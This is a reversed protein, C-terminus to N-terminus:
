KLWTKKATYAARADRERLYDIKPIDWHLIVTCYPSFYIGGEFELSLQLGPFSTSALM